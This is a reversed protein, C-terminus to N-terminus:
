GREEEERETADNWGRGGDGGVVFVSGRTSWEGREVRERSARRSEGRRRRSGRRSFSTESTLLFNFGVRFRSLCNERMESACRFRM